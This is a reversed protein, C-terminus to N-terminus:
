VTRRAAEETLAKAARLAKTRDAATLLSFGFHSGPKLDILERLRKGTAPDVQSLLDAAAAHDPGAYREGIAAICIADAAAIGALVAVGVCVNVATGDETEILEAVQLYKEAIRRRGRGEGLDARRTTLKKPSM